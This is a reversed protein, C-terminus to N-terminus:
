VNKKEDKQSPWYASIPPKMHLVVNAAEGAQTDGKKLRCAEIIWGENLARMVSDNERLGFEKLLNTKGALAQIIINAPVELEMGDGKYKCTLSGSINRLSHTTTYEYKQLPESYKWRNFNMKSLTQFEEPTLPNRAYPNIFIQGHAHKQFHGFGTIEDKISIIIAASLSHYEAFAKSVANNLAIPGLRSLLSLSPSQDSGICVVRPGEVTHQRAKERLVRYIVHEKITKPVEQTLGSSTLYPGQANPQYFISVTYHSLSCCHSEKPNLSIDEFFKLIEPEKLFLKREQLRPLIRVPGAKDDQKGGLKPHIKWTPIGRREAEKFLWRIVANSQREKQWFRHYLFAAEIWIQRGYSLHLLIDPSGGSNPEYEVTGLESATEIVLLEWVFAARTEAHKLNGRVQSLEKGIIRECRLLLDVAQEDKLM